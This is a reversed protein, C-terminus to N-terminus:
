VEAVPQIGIWQWTGGTPTLAPLLPRSRDSETSSPSWSSPFKNGSDSSINFGPVVEVVGTLAIISYSKLSTNLQDLKLGLADVSTKVANIAPVDDDTDGSLSSIAGLIQSSGSNQKIVPM